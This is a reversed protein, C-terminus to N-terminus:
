QLWPKLLDGQSSMKQGRAAPTLHVTRAKLDLFMLLESCRPDHTVAQHGCDCLRTCDAFGVWKSASRLHFARCSAAKGQCPVKGLSNRVCRM